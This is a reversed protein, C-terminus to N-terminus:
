YKVIVKGVLNKPTIPREQSSSKRNDGRVMIRTGLIKYIRKIKLINKSKFVVVDGVKPKVWNFTLVCDGEYFSPLM